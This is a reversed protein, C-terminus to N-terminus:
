MAYLNATFINDFLQARENDNGDSVGVFFSTM